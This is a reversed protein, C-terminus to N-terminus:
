LVESSSTISGSAPAFSPQSVTITTNLFKGQGLNASGIQKSAWYLANDSGTINFTYTDDTTSQNRLSVYAPGSDPHTVKIAGFDSAWVGDTANWSRSKVLKNNASLIEFDKVTVSNPLTFSFRYISQQNQFTASGTTTITRNETNVTAVTVTAMAYDYNSQISELTGVQSTYVWDERPILLTLESGTTLGDVSDLTGSLTATTPKEGSGPTVDLTGKLAGGLYVKVKETSTWYVNLRAGENVLDLAKTASDGKTAQLTLTWVDGDGYLNDRLSPDELEMRQCAALTLLIPFIFLYRTKM